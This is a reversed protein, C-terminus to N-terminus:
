NRGILRAKDLAKCVAGTIFTTALMEFVANIGVFSCIFVIVNRGGILGQIYDTNGFLLVLATMFLVTNLFAASFGAVFGALTSGKWKKVADFIVGALTGMLVLVLYPLLAVALLSFFSEFLLIMAIFSVVGGFFILPLLSRLLKEETSRFILFQLVIAWLLAMLGLFSGMTEVLLTFLLNLFEM